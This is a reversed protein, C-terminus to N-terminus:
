VVIKAIPRDTQILGYGTACDFEVDFGPTNLDEMDLPTQELARNIDALSLNPNAM